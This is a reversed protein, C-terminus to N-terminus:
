AQIGSAFISTGHLFTCCIYFVKRNQNTVNWSAKSEPQIQFFISLEVVDIIEEHWQLVSAVFFHTTWLYPGLCDQGLNVFEDYLFPGGLKKLLAPFCFFCASGLREINRMEPSQPGNKQRSHITLAKTGQATWADVCPYMEDANCSCFIHEICDICWKSTSSLISRLKSGLLMGKKEIRIQWGFGFVDSEVWLRLTEFNLWWTIGGHFILLFM